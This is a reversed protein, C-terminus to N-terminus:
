NFKNLISKFDIGSSFYYNAKAIEYDNLAQIYLAQNYVKKSLADLYTINDVIGNQYKVKVMDYVTNGMNVASKLSNIKLKQTQLKHKALDFKMKEQAKAYALKQNLALKQLKASEIKHKSTTDWLNYTLTLTLQNQEDPLDSLVKSDYDDYNYLNYSDEIQIHPKNVSAIADANQAQAKVSLQLSKIAESDKYQLNLVDPLKSNDLDSIVKGTLLSLNQLLQAKQYELDQITYQNSEYESQLKLVEDITAMNLDYKEKVREYQAKLTASKEKFVRINEIVTKTNFFTTVVELLMEKTSTTTNLQSIKSEYSKAKKTASNKGGDYLNLGFKVFGTTTTGVQVARTDGDLRLLNAGINLTPNFTNSVSQYDKIKANDQIHLAKINQNNQMSFTLAEKLTTANVVGILSGILLAKKFLIM